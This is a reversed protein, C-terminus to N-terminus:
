GKNRLDGTKTRFYKTRSRRPEDRFEEGLDDAKTYLFYLFYPQKSQVLFYKKQDDTKPLDDAKAGFITQRPELYRRSQGLSITQKLGGPDDAKSKVRRLELFRTTILIAFKKRSILIAFKKRSILIAFKKLNILIAFM